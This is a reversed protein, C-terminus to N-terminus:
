EPRQLLLPVGAAGVRGTNQLAGKVAAAKPGQGRLMIAQAARQGPKTYALSLLSPVALAQPSIMSLPIQGSMLAAAFLRDATGSNGTTSPLVERAADSLDQMRAEGMAKNGKGVSRDAIRVSTDLQAPSFNGGKAKSAADRLPVYNAYASDLADLEDALKSGSTRAASDRITARLGELLEKTQIDAATTSKSYSMIRKRLERDLVKFDDGAMVGNRFKPVVESALFAKLSDAVGSGYSAAKQDLAALGTAFDTDAAVKMAGLVRNYGKNFTDKAFRMAKFGTEVSDPLKVDIPALAEDVAARRFADQGRERAGLVLNKVFPISTAADEMSQAVGGAMQGLTMPIKRDALAKVEPRLTPSVVRGLVNGAIKGAGGLAGGIGTDKVFGETTNARSTVAGSALGSGIAGLVGAPAAAAMPLSGGIQGVVVGGERMKDNTPEGMARQYGANAGTTLGIVDTARTGLNVLMAAPDFDAVGRAVGGAYAALDGLTSRKPSPAAVRLHEQVARDVVMDSTGDPFELTDGNALKARIAM